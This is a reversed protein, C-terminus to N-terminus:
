QFDDLFRLHALKTSSFLHLPTLLDSLQLSIYAKRAQKMAKIQAASGVGWVSGM